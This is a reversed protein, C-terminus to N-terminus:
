NRVRTQHSFAAVLSLNGFLRAKGDYDYSVQYGGTVPRIEFDKPDFKGDIANIDLRKGIMRRIESPSGAREHELSKFISTLKQDALYLPVVQMVVLAAMGLVIASIILGVLSMGRQQRVAVAGHHKHNKERAQEM